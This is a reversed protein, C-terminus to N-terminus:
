WNWFVLLYYTWRTNFGYQAFGNKIWFLKMICHAEPDGNFIDNKLTASSYIWEGYVYGPIYLKLCMRWM